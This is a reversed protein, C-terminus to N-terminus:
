SAETNGCGHYKVALRFVGNFGDLEPLVKSKGSPKKDKRRVASTLIGEISAPTRSPISREVRRRQFRNADPRVIRTLCNESPSPRLDQPSLATSKSYVPPLDIFRIGETGYADCTGTGVILIVKHTDKAEAVMDTWLSGLGINVFSYSQKNECATPGPVPVTVRASHASTTFGMAEAGLLGYYQSAQVPSALMLAGAILGLSYKM